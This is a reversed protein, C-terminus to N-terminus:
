ETDRHMFEMFFESWLGANDDPLEMPYTEPSEAHDKRWREAFAEIDAKVEAVFQDLSVTM